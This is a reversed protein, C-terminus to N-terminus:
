APLIRHTSMDLAFTDFRTVAQPTATFFEGVIRNDDITFRLFGFSQDNFAVVRASDGDPLPLGAPLVADFPVVSTQGITGDCAGFLSEVPAHGGSGAVLCPLEWGDAYRYTLRQYLHAHASVILDPRLGSEAFAKQLVEALPKARQAQTPGLTPDGRQFFNTAGSYPPYHVALVMAKHQTRAVSKTRIKRLQNVLWQYQPGQEPRVPDDLIGGNSINSYLGIFDVFPTDFRWYIFPQTMAGRGDTSNDASPGRSAACFNTLFHGVASKHFHPSSKGDHNGAIAFIPRSYGSYPAYFQDNYLQGRDAAEAIPTDEDTEIPAVGTTAGPTYIIDGLHYLFSAPAASSDSGRDRAQAEMGGAVIQQPRHDSADGSCGVMHFTVRGFQVIRDHDASDIDKYHLELGGGGPPLDRPVPTWM